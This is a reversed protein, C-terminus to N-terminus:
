IVGNQSSTTTTLTRQIVQTVMLSIGPEISMSIEWNQTLIRLIPQFTQYKKPLICTSREQNTLITTDISSSGTMPSDTTLIVSILACKFVSTETTSTLQSTWSDLTELSLLNTPLDSCPARSESMSRSQSSTLHKCTFVHILFEETIRGFQIISFTQTVFVTYLMTNLLHTQTKTTMM